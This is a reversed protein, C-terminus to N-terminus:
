CGRLNERHRAVDQTQNRVVNGSLHIQFVGASRVDPFLDEYCTCYENIFSVTPPAQRALTM